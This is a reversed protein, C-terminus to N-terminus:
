FKQKPQKLISRYLGWSAIYPIIDYCVRFLIVALLAQTLSIGMLAYIGAMSAEQVGFGGPVMSINGAAIGITFGTILIDPKVIGGLAYFCFWLVILMFAWYSAILGLIAVIVLPRNRASTRGFALSNDFTNLYPMIDKHVVFKSLANLARMIPARVRAIFISITALIIFFAMIGASFITGVAAGGQVTHSLVLFVLGALLLILLVLGDFYSQYISAAIVRSTKVRYPRTLIIRLSLGGAGSLALINDLAISVYGIQLLKLRSIDIEFLRSIVVFSSCFLFYSIATFLLAVISLFWNAEGILRSAEQWDFAIVAAGILVIVAIIIISVRQRFQMSIEMTYLSRSYNLNIGHGENKVAFIVSTYSKLQYSSIRQFINAYYKVIDSRSKRLKIM